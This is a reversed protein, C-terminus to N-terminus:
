LAEKNLTLENELYKQNHLRQIRLVKEIGTTSEKESIRIEGDFLGVIAQADEVSHMNPDIVAFTTFGKNKLNPLLSSLWKRAIMSHHQLLVDSLLDICARKPHDSSPNIARFTKTLSIDLETLNDVGKLKFVNPANPLILEAQPNCVVSFFDTRFQETFKKANAVDCTLYLTTENSGVGSEVFYRILQERENCPPSSLVVSYSIPIGGLLLRDLGIYGTTVRGPFVEFDPKRAQVIISVPRVAVSKTQGMEDTYIVQPNLNFVGTKTSCVTLKVTQCEFPAIEKGNLKLTGDNEDYSSNFPIVKFGIPFSGEVLILKGGVKAVNVLDLRLRIEDGVEVKQTVMLDANISVHDFKGEIFRQRESHTKKVGEFIQRAKDVLGQQFLAFAYEVRAGIDFLSSAAGAKKYLDLSAQFSENAEKWEKKAALLAARSRMGMALLGNDGSKTVMDFLSNLKNSVEESHPIDGIQAYLRTLSGYLFFKLFYMDTKEAYKIGQLDQDIALKRIKIRELEDLVGVVKSEYALGCEFYAWATTFNDGLKRGLDISKQEELLGENSLGSMTFAAGSHGYASVLDRSNSLDEYIAVCRKGAAIAKEPYGVTPYIISLERLATAVDSPSFEDEFIRLSTEIESIVAPSERMNGTAVSNTVSGKNLQLRAYELRDASAYQEAKAALDLSHRSNGGWYASQVAKRLARLKVKESDAMNLLQEYAKTAEGVSIFLFADALGEQATIRINYDGEKPTAKLVYTFHKVAETNSFRELADNGAAMSYQIAKTSNEAEAYHYALDSLPLMTSDKSLKELKEAIRAHYGKKLPSSLEEYLTERSRAHDFRYSNEEVSVLSTSQAIVNLTELVELVDQGLVTSLLEVDFKEGIVSAADLVRRQPYKLVALRRLIIDRSKLHFALNM